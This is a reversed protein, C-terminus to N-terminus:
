FWRLGLWRRAGKISPRSEIRTLEDLIWRCRTDYPLLTIM